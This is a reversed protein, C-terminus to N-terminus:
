AEKRGSKSEEILFRSVFEGQLGTDFAQRSKKVLAIAKEGDLSFYIGAICSLLLGTRGVGALCHVCVPRAKNIMDIAGYVLGAFADRDRPIDFDEVPFHFWEIGTEECLEGMAQPMEHLSILCRVGERHLWSLDALMREALLDGTGGPMACGALKKPIVWSFNEVSLNIEKSYLLIKQLASRTCGPVV